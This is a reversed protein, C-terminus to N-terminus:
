PSSLKSLRSSPRSRWMREHGLDLVYQEPFEAIADELDRLTQRMLDVDREAGDALQSEYPGLVRIVVDRGKAPTPIMLLLPCGALRAARAAGTSFTRLAFGAFPLDITEGHDKHWHADVNVYLMAPKSRMESLVRLLARGRYVAQVWGAPSWSTISRLTLSLQIRIRWEHANRPAAPPEAVAVFMPKHGVDPVTIGLTAPGRLFHGSALVFSGPGHLIQRAQESCEVHFRYRAPCDRGAITRHQWNHEYFRNAQQRWYLWLARSMTCGFTNRYHRATTGFGDLMIMGAACLGALLWVVAGPLVYAAPRFVYAYLLARATDVREYRLMRLTEILKRM